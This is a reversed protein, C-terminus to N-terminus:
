GAVGSGQEKVRSGKALGKEYVLREYYSLVRQSVRDWSYHQARERGREAIEVRHDEDRLVDILADALADSDKPRM